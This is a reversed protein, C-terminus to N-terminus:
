LLQLQLLLFDFLLLLVGGLKHLHLAVQAPGPLFGVALFSGGLFSCPHRRRASQARTQPCPSTLLTHAHVLSLSLSHTTDTIRPPRYSSGGPKELGASGVQLSSVSKVFKLFVGETQRCCVVLVRSKKECGDLLM